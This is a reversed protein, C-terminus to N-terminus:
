KVRRVEVKSMLLPVRPLLAVNAVQLLHLPNYYRPLALCMNVHVAACSRTHYKALARCIIGGWDGGQALYKSYGLSTMLTDVVAAMETVGCGREKPASSFGYGPLSPAVIHFRGTQKLLPIVKYFEFFSGPWGAPTM